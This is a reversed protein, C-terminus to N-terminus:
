TSKIYNYIITLAFDLDSNFIANLQIDNVYSHVSILSFQSIINFIPFDLYQYSNTLICLNHYITFYKAFIHYTEISLFLLLITLFLHRLFTLVNSKKLIGVMSVLVQWYM